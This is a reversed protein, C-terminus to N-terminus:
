GPGRPPGAAGRAPPSAGATSRAGTGPPACPRRSAWAASPAGTYKGLTEDVYAFSTYGRELFHAAALAGVARSDMRVCPAGALPDGAPLPGPAPNELLVVPVRLAALAAADAPEPCEAIVGEVGLRALDLTQEQARGEQMLVNWEGRERAYDLIGRCESRTGKLALNLFLAIKM